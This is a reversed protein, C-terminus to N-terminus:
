SKQVVSKLNLVHFKGVLGGQKSNIRQWPLIAVGRVNGHWQQGSRSKEMDTAAGGSADFRSKNWCNQSCCDVMQLFFLRNEGRWFVVDTHTPTFGPVDQCMGTENQPKTATSVAGVVPSTATELNDCCKSTFGFYAKQHLLFLTSTHRRM